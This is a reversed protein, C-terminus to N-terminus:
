KNRLVVECLADAHGSKRVRVTVRFRAGSTAPWGATSLNYVYCEGDSDLRMAHGGDSSAGADEPIENGVPTGGGDLQVIEDITATAAPDFVNDCTVRVKVPVTRRPQIVNDVNNDLPRLFRCELPGKLVTVSVVSTAENGDDDRATCTVETTGPALLAPSCTVVPEVDCNDTATVGLDSAAIALPAGACDTVLTAPASSHLTPAERDEVTVHFTGSVENGSHDRATCTVATTGCPFADGSAVSGWPAECTIPV